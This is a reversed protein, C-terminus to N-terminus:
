AAVACYCSRRDVDITRRSTLWATAVFLLGEVTWNMGGIVLYIFFMEATPQFFALYVYVGGYLTMGVGLAWTAVLVMWQPISHRRPRVFAVLGGVVCIALPYLGFGLSFVVSSLNLLIMAGYSTALLMIHLTRRSLWCFPWVLALPFLALLTFLLVSLVEAIVGAWPDHSSQVGLRGAEYWGTLTWYLHQAAFLAGWACAAYGAWTAWRAPGRGAARVTGVFGGVM